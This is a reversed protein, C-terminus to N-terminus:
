CDVKADGVNGGCNQCDTVVEAAVAAAWGVKVLRGGGGGAVVLGFAWASETNM